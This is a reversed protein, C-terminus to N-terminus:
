PLICACVQLLDIALFLEDHECMREWVCVCVPEELSKTECTSRQGWGMLKEGQRRDVETVHHLRKQNTAECRPDDADLATEGSYLPDGQLVFTLPTAEGNDITHTHRRTRVVSGSQLCLCPLFLWPNYYYKNYWLTVDKHTPSIHLNTLILSEIFKHLKM